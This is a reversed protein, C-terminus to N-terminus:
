PFAGQLLRRARGEVMTAHAIKGELLQWQDRLKSERMQLTDASMCRMCVTTLCRPSCMNAASQRPAHPTMTSFSCKRFADRLIRHDPTQLTGTQMELLQEAQLLEAERQRLQEERQHSMASREIHAQQWGFEDTDTPNAPLPTRQFSPSPSVTGLSQEHAFRRLKSASSRLNEETETVAAERREIDREREQVCKERWEVHYQLSRLRLQAIIKEEEEAEEQKEEECLGPLHCKDCSQIHSTM